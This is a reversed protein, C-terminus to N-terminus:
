LGSSVYIGIGAALAIQSVNDFAWHYVLICLGHGFLLVDGYSM